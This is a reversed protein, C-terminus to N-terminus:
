RTWSAGAQRDAERARDGRAVHEDQGLGRGAGGDERLGVLRVAAAPEVTVVGDHQALVRRRTSTMPWIPTSGPVSHPVPRVLVASLVSRRLAATMAPSVLPDSAKSGDISHSPKAVSENSKRPPYGPLGTSAAGVTTETLGASPEVVVAETLGVTVNLSATVVLAEANESPQETLPLTAKEKLPLPVCYVSSGM